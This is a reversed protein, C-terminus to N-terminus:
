ATSEEMAGAGTGRRRVDGSRRTLREQDFHELVAQAFKRTTGVLDRFEALTISGHEDLQRVTARVMARYVEPAFAMTDSIRVVMGLDALARLTDPDVGYEGPSPPAYPTADLAKTFAEARERVTPDLTIQFGPLRLHQDDDVIIGALAATSVFAEFAKQDLGLARRLAERPLGRQMPHERHRKGIADLAKEELTTRSEPAALMAGGPLDEGLIVLRGQALLSAITEAATERELGAPPSELLRRREVLGSGVAQLVLDGPEGGALLELRALTEHHFRKRRPPNPDVIVGGGITESPSPRRVIFRDGRAVAVPAGLRLQVWGSGGPEIAEADLLTLRAPREAAGSFFDVADNQELPAPASKLLTLRCDLRTSAALAGPLTLVDGRAIAEVPVAALNIAARTGARAREVRQNHAQIGRIRVPLGAPMLVTEMGSEFGGGLMTGTVVTGFGQVSFVRDVPLRPPGSQHALRAGAVARDLAAVLEELGAGTTASVPVVLAGALTTEGLLLETEERVLDIMEGDALDAKTLAVVGQDIGLLDLIALHERTQPMPGEDAAVILLALDIGGVGALMNKIFREHGPVDVIAARRGSPLDLWAFGLDITMERLKEEQLRDPDIGTLARVLTSKGHDVHGATGIVIQSGAPAPTAQLM